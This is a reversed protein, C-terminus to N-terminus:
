IVQSFNNSQRVFGAVEVDDPKIKWVKREAQAFADAGGWQLVLLFHETLPGGVIVDLQGNYLLVQLLYTIAFRHNVCVIYVHHETISVLKSDDIIYSEIVPLTM